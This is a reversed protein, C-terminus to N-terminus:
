DLREYWDDIKPPTPPASRAWASNFQITLEELERELMEIRDREQKTYLYNARKVATEHGCYLNDDICIFDAKESLLENYREETVVLFISHM